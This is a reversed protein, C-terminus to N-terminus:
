SLSTTSTSRKWARCLYFPFNGDVITTGDPLKYATGAKAAPYHYLKKMDKSFLVGDVSCYKPNDEAVEYYELQDCYAFAYSINEVSKGLKVRTASPAYGFASPGISKVKDPIIIEQQGSLAYVFVNTGIAELNEPLTITSLKSCNLFAYDDISILSSPLKISTMNTCNYFAYKGIRTVGEPVVVETLDTRDRFEMDKIETTGESVLNEQAVLQPTIGWFAICACLM